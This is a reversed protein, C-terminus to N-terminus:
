ILNKEENALEQAINESYKTANNFVKVKQFILINFLEQYFDEKSICRAFFNLCRM